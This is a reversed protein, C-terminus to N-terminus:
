AVRKELQALVEYVRIAEGLFRLPPTSSALEISKLRSFYLILLINCRLYYMHM